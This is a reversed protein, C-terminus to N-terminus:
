PTKKGAIAVLIDGRLWRKSWLYSKRTMKQVLSLGAFDAAGLDGANMLCLFEFGHIHNLLQTRELRSHLTKWAMGPWASKDHSYDPDFILLNRVDKIRFGAKRLMASLTEATFNGLHEAPSLVAWNKGLIRRSLSKLDPTSIILTGRPRLLRRIRRLADLPDPLHEILDLCTIADFSDEPFSSDEFRGQLVDVGVVERAYRAAAASAEIGRGDWGDEGAAKLFFGAGCGVDLLRKGPASLKSLLGLYLHYHAKVFALDYATLSSHLSRLYTEFFLPSEYRALLDETRPRPSAYVLGCDACRVLGFGFKECFAVRRSSGCLLCNVRVGTTRDEGRPEKGIRM